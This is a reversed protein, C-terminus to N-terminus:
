EILIRGKELALFQLLVPYQTLLEGYKALEDFRIRTDIHNEAKNQLSGAMYDRQKSLYDEYLIRVSRYLAFDPLRIGLIHCSLKDLYPYRQKIESTLRPSEGELLIQDLEGSYDGSNLRQTILFKIDGTIKEEFVDLEMQDKINNESLVAILFDPNVRFSLDASFSYTFDAEMGAFDAYIKGSLLENEISISSNITDLHFSTVTVNTPILKYWIWRFEGAQILRTDPGHTKSSMVGYDGSPVTFQVWGIFFVAGGLVILFFLVLLIKKM